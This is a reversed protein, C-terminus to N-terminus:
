PAMSVGVRFFQAKKVVGGPRIFLPYHVYVAQIVNGADTALVTPTATSDVWVANDASFQVTYSLVISAYDVRRCFVARYDWGGTGAAFNAAYPPGASTLLSGTYAITPITSNSPNLGFAYEQLNTLGDGDPDAGPLANSGTLSPYNTTIWAGYFANMITIASSSGTKGGTSTATLTVAEPVTDKTRITFTGAVLTKTNDGFTSDGNSDFAVSGTGTMTVVTASDNTVTNNYADKGTVTTVFAVGATQPSSASVVYSNVAAPNITISSSTGTKSNADTATLTVAQAVTDKTSITFTGSSLTKTNDGFTSDGNSDFAVSGTGTMTVVTASDTTVTNSNADKATVTTTFASGATQSSSASVVYSAIAGPNVNFTATGTKSSGTVVFTLSSGATVPTVSVGTLQGSAFAASTGTIGATGSYAVTGTFSPVTNNGVDQATLAIGTVATGATQPSAVSSIAFHDLAGVNVNFTATGTKSSGTVVFTKGSGATLPTVSVGTLQGSTFAASTGTIGATGSYGVTSTFSTVTNNGVDQATLTIGTIATGATQPSSISSIAFHDLTGVTIIFTASDAGTLGSSTATLKYGTGITNISLGGFAAVGSSASVPTTGSLTGPGGSSPTGSTIALAISASSGTVTNGYSDQVTVVPQTAFATGGTLTGGPSTTFALKNATGSSVTVSSSSVGTLGSITPTITTTQADVLTTAIASAQGSAFTVSTTYTPSAGGPANAPGSYSVTQSGTFLTDTFNSSDVATLTINFSSGATQSSVTGSNGIGSTFTQGPLTVVLQSAPGTSATLVGTASSGFYTSNKNTASSASGGWTGRIQRTGGLFLGAVTETTGSTLTVTAGSAVSLAGSGLSGTVNATLSGASVTTGGTYTNASGLVLTGPYTKTLAYSGSIAGSMTVTGVTPTPQGSPGVQIALNGTLTPYTGSVTIATTNQDDSNFIITGSTPFTLNATSVTLTGVRNALCSGSAFTVTNTPSAGGTVSYDLTAGSQVAISSANISNLTFVFLRGSTVSIAGIANNGSARNLILDSGGTTLGTGGSIAGAFYLPVGLNLIGGGTGLAITRATTIASSGTTQLTGGSFTIGGSTNGLNGDSGISVTGGTDITTGGTYTNAGNLDLLNGAGTEKLVGSGSIVGNAMGNNVTLTQSSNISVTGGSAVVLNQATVSATVTVTHTNLVSIQGTTSSTPPTSTNAWAGSSYLQWTTTGSWNGTARSQYDGNLPNVSIISSTGTKPTADTATITVSEFANDKASITFTGSALTQTNDGFSSDGNADFQMDGTSSTLTVVTSSDTTVTNSGADMATVTVNFATGRTQTTAASVSYSAIAGLTINFPSSTAGSLAGDSAGLTYGTGIKDIKLGLGSFSAVGAIAAKTLTGSLVGGPGANTAIALTVTSTDTTVTNGGADQVTVVPQTTWATGGTGGGPQTTFALKAAAGLTINFTSSTAGTLAGDTATLTYGTGPKDISLGSFTAVGAVAAVTKTGSLTGSGPNTGIALTVSSTDTTVTNGNADQVTVVPQTTWATGGTGAGPQTTFALKAAAGASFVMNGSTVATLAPGSGSKTATLTMTDAASYVPTAITVSNAGVAITGSLTGSLTGGGTAKSLTITATATIVNAANGGADQSQVTVSFATGATGTSPVTTYALKAAAGTTIGFAGSTASSLSSDTATLTYGTGIKDIKLANASFSAVGAVAAKTLAGSLVGGPGANNAIALTVTSTDTIVTNGNADQVTVVPQTTWATGGTGGGPQTTFALQAAAGASFVINGSTVATLTVGGSATATLTM